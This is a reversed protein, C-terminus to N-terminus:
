QDFRVHKMLQASIQLRPNNLLVKNGLLQLKGQNEILAFHAGDALLNKSSTVWVSYTNLLYNAADEKKINIELLPKLPFNYIINCSRLSKPNQEPNFDFTRVSVKSMRKKKREILSALVEALEQDSTKNICVELNDAITRQWKVFTGMQVLFYAQIIRKKELDIESANTQFSMVLLIISLLKPIVFKM